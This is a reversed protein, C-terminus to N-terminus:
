SLPVLDVVQPDFVVQVTYVKNGGSTPKIGAFPDWVKEQAPQPYFAAGSSISVPAKVAGPAIGTKYDAIDDVVYLRLEGYNNKEDATAMAVWGAGDALGENVHRSNPTTADQEGLQTQLTALADGHITTVNVNNRRLQARRALGLCLPVAIAILVAAIVVTCVTEVVTFGACQRRTTRQKPM